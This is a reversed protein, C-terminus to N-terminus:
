QKFIQHILNSGGGVVLATLVRAVLMNSIAESFLNVGALWSLLAGTVFSVYVLWWLDLQPFRQRIPDALYNIVAFNATALFLAIALENM